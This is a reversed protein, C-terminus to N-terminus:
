TQPKSFRRMTKERYLTRDQEACRKAAPKDSGNQATNVLGDPAIEQPPHPKSQCNGFIQRYYSFLSGNKGTKSTSEM